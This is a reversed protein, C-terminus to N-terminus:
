PVEHTEEEKEGDPTDGFERLSREAARLLLRGEAAKPSGTDNLYAVAREFPTNTVLILLAYHYGAQGLMYRLPVVKELREVLDIQNTWLQCM